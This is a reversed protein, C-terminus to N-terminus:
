LFINKNKLFRSGTKYSAYQLIFLTDLRCKSVVSGVAKLLEEQSIFYTM